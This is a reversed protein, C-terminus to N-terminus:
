GYIENEAGIIRLVRELQAVLKGDLCLLPRGAAAQNISYKLYLLTALACHTKGLGMDDAILAVPPRDALILEVIFRVGWVQHPLFRGNPIGPIRLMRPGIDGEVPTLLQVGLMRVADEFCQHEPDNNLQNGCLGLLAGDSTTTPEAAATATANGDADDLANNERIHRPNSSTGERNRVLDDLLSAPIESRM